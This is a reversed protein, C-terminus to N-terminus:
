RNLSGPGQNLDKAQQIAAQTTKSDAGDPITVIGCATKIITM